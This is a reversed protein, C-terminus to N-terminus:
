NKWMMPRYSEREGSICAVYEWVQLEFCRRLSVKYGTHPHVTQSQLKEEWHKLFRRLGDPHLYVGGRGDPPTFDEHKYIDSNMLYAVLSDVVQSRFEEVLDCVLSPRNSQPVHLNGFHTHLGAAETMAHVNQSLLTYGLSLLSNTPDTPPRRTRKEFKFPGKLLSGYARFYLSAGQGEFGLMSEVTEANPLKKMLASMEKLAKTATETKRRRNLRLLLKRSNHLKGLIINMAQQRVFAEDKSKEVQAILYELKAQGTTELRGFYRGKNSLYLIPIRRQLALRTAGFSINCAGFAVVFTVSNAPVSIRLEREYFVQFQQHRVRLYAGQETIYLTTMGDRWYEDTSRKIKTKPFKVISCAKPPGFVPRATKREKKKKVSWTRDPRIVQQREFGHGLFVFGDDPGIIRTKEPNLTLYIDELWDQMMTLFRSAQLYSQCVVVCDDGYRVLPMGMETCRRDFESLYLNALSGSLIGGQVVGKNPRYLQGQLVMGSKLQQEILQVQAPAIKLRELQSLLVGWSLNDFFQQIDAKVVWTPQAGYHAMVRDVAGYISLGPRYAFSSESFAAELKPYIAQLLYRQLIRDKVTSLGILRRGIVEGKKKKTVYFGKTPSAAYVERRLQKLMQALQEPAVGAFLDTTIGDVGAAPSGRQVLGWAVELHEPYIQM